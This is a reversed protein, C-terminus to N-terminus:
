IKSIYTLFVVLNIGTYVANLLYLIPNGWVFEIYDDEDEFKKYLFLSCFGVFIGVVPIWMLIRILNKM